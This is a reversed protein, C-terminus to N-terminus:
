DCRDCYPKNDKIQKFASCKYCLMKKSILQRLVITTVNIVKRCNTTTIDEVGWSYCDTVHHYIVPLVRDKLIIEMHHMGIGVKIVDPYGWIDELLDYREWGKDPHKLYLKVDDLMARKNSEMLENPLLPESM